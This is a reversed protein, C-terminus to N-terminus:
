RSLTLTNLSSRVIKTPGVGLNKDVETFEEVTLDGLMLEAEEEEEVDSVTIVEEVEEIEEPEEPEEVPEEVKKNHRHRKSKAEVRSPSEPLRRKRSPIEIVPKAQMPKPRSSSSPTPTAPTVSTESIRDLSPKKTPAGFLGGRPRVFKEPLVRGQDIEKDIFAQIAPPVKIQYAQCM